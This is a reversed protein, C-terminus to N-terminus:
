GYIAAECAIKRFHAMKRSSSQRPCGPCGDQVCFDCGHHLCDDADVDLLRGPLLVGLRRQVVAPVGVDRGDRPDLLALEEADLATRPTRKPKQTDGPATAERRTSTSVPVAGVEAGDVRRRAGPEGTSTRRWRRSEYVRLHMSQVPPWILFSSEASSTFCTSRVCTCQVNCPHASRAWLLGM